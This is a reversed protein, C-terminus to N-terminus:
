PQPERVILVPAFGGGPTRMNTTQGEYLRAAALLLSGAYTYLRIDAKLEAHESQRAVGRLGPPAFAQAVYDGGMIEAWVRRTIKDGRYTAKSGHGRAPKFFLRDRGRWLEEANHASVIQTTLVGDELVALPEPALGWRRLRAVDSLLALNRKDAL